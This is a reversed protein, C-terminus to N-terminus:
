QTQSVQGVQLLSTSLNDSPGEQFSVAMVLPQKTEITIGGMNIEITKIQGTAGDCILDSKYELNKTHKGNAIGLSDSGGCIKTLQGGSAIGELTTIIRAQEQTQTQVEAVKGATRAIGVGVIGILLVGILSEILFDGRQTRRMNTVNKSFRPLKM